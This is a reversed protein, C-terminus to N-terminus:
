FDFEVLIPLHDSPKVKLIKASRVKLDRSCFVYDIRWRLKDEKFGRYDFPKTAWTKEEFPPGANKLRKGLEKVTFSNPIANFDGCLIYNKPQIVELLKKGEAKKAETDEFGHAYALHTTAITIEKGKDSKIIGELYTRAVASYDEYDTSPKQLFVHKKNKIKNRSLIVNGYVWECDGERANQSAVFFCDFGLKEALYKPTDLGENYKCGVTVEQLCAVDANQSAIVKAIAKIDEKYWVNWNLLKM